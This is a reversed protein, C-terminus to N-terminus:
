ENDIKKRLSKKQSRQKKKEIRKLVSSKTPSTKIRKKQPRLAYSVLAYFKDIAIQKNNFQSRESQAVIILEGEKSIKGALKKLILKKESESLLQSNKVDFRLEVKSNVKNVHQGGPGSSRSQSFSFEKEFNRLFLSM